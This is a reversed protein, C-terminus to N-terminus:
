SKSTTIRNRINKVRNQGQQLTEKRDAKPASAQGSQDERSLYRALTAITPYNFMTVVPIERKLTERLISNVRVIDLSTANLDFFNDDVGVQDIGLFKQWV